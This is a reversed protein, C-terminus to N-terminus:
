IPNSYTAFLILTVRCLVVHLGDSAIQPRNHSVALDFLTLFWTRIPELSSILLTAVQPHEEGFFPQVLGTAQFSLCFFISVFGPM